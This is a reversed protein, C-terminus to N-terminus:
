KAQRKRGRFALGLLGAGAAIVAGEIAKEGVGTLVSPNTPHAAAEAESYANDADFHFSDAILQSTTALQDADAVRCYFTVQVLCKRGFYGTMQGHVQGIGAVSMSMPVRYRRNLTDLEAQGISLGSMMAKAQPSLQQDVAKNIDAGTLAKLVTPFQDENIQRSAGFDSYPVVQIIVYPYEFWGQGTAAQFAADYNMRHPSNPNQVKVALSDVVDQPIQQWGPLVELTYGIRQSHFSAARAPLAICPLISGVMGIYGILTGRFGM